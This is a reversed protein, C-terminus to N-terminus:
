PREAIKTEESPVAVGTLEAGELIWQRLTEIDADPLKKGPPMAPETEHSAFAFLLSRKLSAPRLAPGRQGGALMSERTRLDLGSTKTAGHCVFCNSTLIEYARSSLDDAALLASALLVPSAIRLTRHMDM